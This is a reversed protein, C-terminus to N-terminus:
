LSKILSVNIVKLVTNELAAPKLVKKSNVKQLHKLLGLVPFFAFFLKYFQREMCFQMCKSFKDHRVSM